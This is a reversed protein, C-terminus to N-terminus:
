QLHLLAEVVSVRTSKEHCETCLTVTTLHPYELVPLVHADLWETAIAGAAVDLRSMKSSMCWRRIMATCRNRLYGKKTALQTAQGEMRFEPWLKSPM